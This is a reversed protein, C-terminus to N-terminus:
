KVQLEVAYDKANEVRARVAYHANAFTSIEPQETYGDLFMFVYDLTYELDGWEEAHESVAERWSYDWARCMVAEQWATLAGEKAYHKHDSNRVVDELQRMYNAAQENLPKAWGQKNWADWRADYERKLVEGSVWEGDIYYDFDFPHRTETKGSIKRVTLYADPAWIIQVKFGDLRVWSGIKIPLRYKERVHKISM